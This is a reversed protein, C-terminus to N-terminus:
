EQVKSQIFSKKLDFMILFVIASIIAASFCWVSVLFEGYFIKTFIFSSLIALGIAWMKKVSSVFPPVVTAIFYIAPVYPSFSAEPDLLYTIHNGSIMAYVHYFCLWTIRYGSIILGLGSLIYLIKRRGTNKEIFLMALPGCLPWIAQAFLIFLCTMSKQLNAYAPNMLSLWVFGETIQQVAFIMPISAFLYNSPKHVKSLTMVGIVSIVIGASFSAGASFCM